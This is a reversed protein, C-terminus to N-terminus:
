VASVQQTITRTRYQIAADATLDMRQWTIRGRPPKNNYWKAGHAWFPLKTGGAGHKLFAAEDARAVFQLGPRLTYRLHKQRRYAEVLGEITNPMRRYAGVFDPHALQVEITDVYVPETEGESVPPSYPTKESAPLRLGRDELRVVERSCFDAEDNIRAIALKILLYPAGYLAQYRNPHVWNTFVVENGTWLRHESLFQNEDATPKWRIRDWGDYWHGDVDVLMFNRHAGTNETGDDSERVVSQDLIRVSFSLAEKHSVLGTIKGFRVAGAVHRENAREVRKRRSRYRPLEIVAGRQSLPVLFSLLDLDTGIFNGAADLAPQPHRGQWGIVSCNLLAGVLEGSIMSSRDFLQRALPHNGTLVDRVSDAVDVPVFQSGAPVATRAATASAQM